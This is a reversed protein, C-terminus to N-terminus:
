EAEIDTAKKQPANIAMFRERRQEKIEEHKFTQDKGIRRNIMFGIGLVCCALLFAAQVSEFNTIYNLM